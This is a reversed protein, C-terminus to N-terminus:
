VVKRQVINEELYTFFHMHFEYARIYKLDISQTPPLVNMNRKKHAHHDKPSATDIILFLEDFNNKVMNKLHMDWTSFQRLQLMADLPRLTSSTTRLTAQIAKIPITAAALCPAIDAAALVV